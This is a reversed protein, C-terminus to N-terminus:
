KNLVGAEQFGRSYGDIGWEWEPANSFWAVDTSSGAWGCSAAPAWEGFM